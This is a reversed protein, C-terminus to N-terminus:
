TIKLNDTFIKAYESSIFAAIIKGDLRVFWNGNISSQNTKVEQKKKKRM